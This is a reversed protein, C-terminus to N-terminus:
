STGFHQAFNSVCIVADIPMEFIWFFIKKIKSTIGLIRSSLRHMTFFIFTTGIFLLKLKGESLCVVSIRQVHLYACACLRQYSLSFFFIIVFWCILCECRKAHRKWKGWITNIGMSIDSSYKLHHHLPEIKGQCSDSVLFIDAVVWQVSSM